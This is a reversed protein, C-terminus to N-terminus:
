SLKWSIETTALGWLSRGVILGEGWHAHLEECRSTSYTWWWEQGPSASHSSQGISHLLLSMWPSELESSRLLVLAKIKNKPYELRSHAKIFVAEMSHPLGLLQSSFGEHLFLSAEPLSGLQARLWCGMGTQHPQPWKLDIWQGLISALVMYLLLLIYDVWLIM